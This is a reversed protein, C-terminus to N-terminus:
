LNDGMEVLIAVLITTGIWAYFILLAVRYSM